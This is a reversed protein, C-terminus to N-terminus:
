KGKDDKALSVKKLLNIFQDYSEKVEPPAGKRLAYGGGPKPYVWKSDLVKLVDESPTM